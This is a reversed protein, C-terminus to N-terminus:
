FNYKPLSDLDNKNFIELLRDYSYYMIDTEHDYYIENDEFIIIGNKNEITPKGYKVTSVYWEEKEKRFLKYLDSNKIFTTNNNPTIKTTDNVNKNEKGKIVVANNDGNWEVTAGLPEAVFRAPVMVRGNINQPPVDCHIEQGNVFLRIPNDAFAVTSSLLSGIIIGSALYKIKQTNIM